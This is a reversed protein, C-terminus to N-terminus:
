GFYTIGEWGAGLEPISVMEGSEVETVVGDLEGRPDFMVKTPNAGRLEYVDVVAGSPDVTKMASEGLVAVCVNGAADVTM